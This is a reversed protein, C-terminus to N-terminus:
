FILRTFFNFVKSLFGPTEEADLKDETVAVPDDQESFGSVIINWQKEIENADDSVVVKIKYEGEQDPVFKISSEKGAEVSEELALKDDIYWEVKLSDSDLDMLKIKYEETEGVKIRARNESFDDFMPATGSCREGEIIIKEYHNLSKDDSEVNIILSLEEEDICDPLKLNLNFEEQKGVEIDIGSVTQTAIGLSPITIAVRVGEQKKLGINDLTLEVNLTDGANYNEKMNIRSFDLGSSTIKPQGIIYVLPELETLPCKITLEESDSNKETITFLAGSRTRGERLNDRTSKLKLDDQSSLKLNIHRNNDEIYITFDIEEDESVGELKHAPLTMKFNIVDGPEETNGIDLLIGG